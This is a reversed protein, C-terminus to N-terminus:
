IALTTTSFGYNVEMCIITEQDGWLIKTVMQNDIIQLWVDGPYPEHTMLEGSLYYRKPFEQELWYHKM